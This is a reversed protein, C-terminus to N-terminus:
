RSFLGAELAKRIRDGTEELHARSTQDQIHSSAKRIDGELQRLQQRALARADEPADGTFAAAILDPVSTAQDIAETNRLSLNMLINLYQRQLGRQLPSLREAQLPQTWISTQLGEFLESLSLSSREGAQGPRLEAAVLRRLRDGSLLDSLIWTQNLLVRDYYPYDLNRVTPSQGWHFWRSPPLKDLLRPPLEFSAANLVTEGLITLARRQDALPTDKLPLERNQDGARYRNLSRGGIYSTLAQAQNFYYGLLVNFQQRLRSYSEGQGPGRRDLQAWLSQAIAMQRVNYSLTDNSLDFTAVEPDLSAMADEDTGYALGPEPARRAIEELARREEQPLKAEPFVSYGYAIAWHDYPGLATTFYDGQPEGPAALNVPLYDMVSGSLGQTQTLVTNHLDTPSHLTSGHFNHRLGLLHGVEHAILARLYQHIYRKADVSSPLVNGLGGLAIAGVSLQERAAWSFCRDGEGQPLPKVGLSASGATPASRLLGKLRELSLQELDFDQACWRDSPGLGQGGFDGLHALLRQRLMAGGGPLQALTLAEEQVYAVMDADVLVDGDLIQGSFPNVRSPGLAFGGDVSNFWRITNYRVDAPDWDAKDPMQKVEIADQFGLKRFAANWMLAGERVAQRYESPVTNEIWLVIPQVPRSLPQDPTAKQLFWRNIYRVFPDRRNRASVDQYATLFYGVREDALRPQYGNNWPLLSLSYRVGLSLAQNNPLTALQLQRDSGRGGGEFGYSVAFEANMPFNQVGTLFSKEKRAQFGLQSLYPQLVQLAAGDSLLLPELDVLLSKREPHTALIPLSYLVSDSFSDKLARQTSDGLRARFYLNPVVIQLRNDIQRLTLPFDQLPMGRYLGAEGIGASLTSVLLYYRNLKDPPIEALLRGKKSDRYLPLLGPQPTLGQTIEGFSQSSEDGSARPFRRTANPGSRDSSSRGNPSASSSSGTALPPPQAAAPHTWQFPTSPTSRAPYGLLFPSTLRSVLSSFGSGILTSLSLMLGLGLALWFSRSRM